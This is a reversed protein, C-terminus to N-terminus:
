NPICYIQLQALVWACFLRLNLVARQLSDEKSRCILVTIYVDVYLTSVCVCENGYVSSRKLGALSWSWKVAHFGSKPHVVGLLGATGCCFNLEPFSSVGSSWDPVDVDVSHTIECDPFPAGQLSLSVSKSYSKNNVSLTNYPCWFYNLTPGLLFDYRVAKQICPFM